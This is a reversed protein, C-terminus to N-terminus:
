RNGTIQTQGNQGHVTANNKEQEQAKIEEPTQTRFNLKGM